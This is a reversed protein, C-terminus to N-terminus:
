RAGYPRGAHRHRHHGIARRTLWLQERHQAVSLMLEAIARWSGDGTTDTWDPIKNDDSQAHNPPIAANMTTADM